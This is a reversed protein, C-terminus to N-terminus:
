WALDPGAGRAELALTKPPEEAVMEINGYPCREVCARCGIRSDTQVRIEGGPLRVIAEGACYFACRTTVTAVRMAPDVRVHGQPGLSVTGRLFDTNPVVGLALVVLGCPVSGVTRTPDRADVLQVSTVGGGGSRGVIAGITTGLRVQVKAQRSREARLRILEGVVQDVTGKLIWESRQVLTVDVHRAVLAQAVELGLFGAGVVVARQVRADELRELLLNADKLTRLVTVGELDAGAPVPDLDQLTRARAGTAILLLRDYRIEGGARLRVVKRVPDVAAVLGPRFTVNLEEFKSPPLAWLEHDDVKGLLYNTLSARYYYRQPDDSVVILPDDPRERRIAEVASMGAVGDGLIVHTLPRDTSPM